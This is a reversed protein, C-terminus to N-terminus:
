LQAMSHALTTKEEALAAEHERKLTLTEGARELLVLSTVLLGHALGQLVENRTASYSGYLGEVFARFVVPDVECGGQPSPTLGCPLELFEAAGRALSAYLLGSHYGADWLTEGRHEFPYSM